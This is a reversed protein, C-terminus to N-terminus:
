TLTPFMHTDETAASCFGRMGDKGSVKIQLQSSELEWRLGSQCARCGILLRLTNGAATVM